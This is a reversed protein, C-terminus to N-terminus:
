LVNTRLAAFEEGTMAAMLGVHSQLAALVAQDFDPRRDPPLRRHHAFAYQLVLLVTGSYCACAAREAPTGPRSQDLLPDLAAMAQDLRDTSALAADAAAIWEKLATEYSALIDPTEALLDAKPACGAVTAAIVDAGTGSGAPLHLEEPRTPTTNEIRVGDSCNFLSVEPHAPAFANFFARTFLLALNTYATGGFNGPLPIEFRDMGTGGRLYEDDTWNYYSADSHHKDPSKSGLDLGFFYIQRSGLWAGARSALNTVTPAAHRWRGFEGEFLVSSTVRDQFYFLVDGFLGPIRPDITATCLLPIRSLDHREAVMALGDFTEPDNEVECHLDPTIDQELLASLATGGSILVADQRLRRIDEIAGDLSPGTGIVLTPMDTRPTQQAAALVGKAGAINTVANRIMICEDEVFGLSSGLTPVQQAFLDRTRDLTPSNYHTFIYSGDLRAFGGKRLAEFGKAALAAPDDGTFLHLTGGEASLASLLATWDLVRLSADVFHPYPEILVLDRYRFASQLLPLHLGLGVGLSVMAGVAVDTAGDSPAPLPGFRDILAQYVDGEGKVWRSGIRPPEFFLRKPDTRFRAVQGAAYAAAGGSYLASAGLDLNIDQGGPEAVVALPSRGAEEIATITAGPLVRRLAALNTHYLESNM